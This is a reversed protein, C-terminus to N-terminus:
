QKLLLLLVATFGSILYGAWRGRGSAREDFQQAQPTDQVVRAHRARKELFLHQPTATHLSSPTCACRMSKSDDDSKTSSIHLAITCKLSSLSNNILQENSNAVRMVSESCKCTGVNLGIVVPMTNECHMRCLEFTTPIIHITPLASANTATIPTDQTKVNHYYHAHHASRQCEHSYDTDRTIRLQPLLTYPTGLARIRPQLRHKQHESTTTIIYITPLASANTVTIPTAPTKLSSFSKPTCPDTHKVLVILACGVLQSCYAATPM